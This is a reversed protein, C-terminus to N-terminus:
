LSLRRGRIIGVRGDSADGADSLLQLQTVTTEHTGDGTAGNAGMGDCWESEAIDSTDATVTSDPIAMLGILRGRKGSRPPRSVEVGSTALTEALRFLEKSLRAADHPWGSQRNTPDIGLTSNAIPDLQTKLESATGEWENRGAMFELIAQSLLSASVAEEHQRNINREYAALFRAGGWGAAEAIAYGWRAFDAMRFQRPVPVSPLIGIAKSLVAFAGGLIGPLDAQFETWFTAEDLPEKIRVLTVLLGRDLLDPREATHSIGNLCLVRRYAFLQADENTYLKRRFTADGTVAAALTDSTEPGIGSLNDVFLAWTQALQQQLDKLDTLRRITPVRSPDLILKSARATTTKGSGQPGALDLVPRPGDPSMCVLVWTKLLLAEESEPEVPLYRDISDFNGAPVPTAQHFQHPFRKFLIPPAEVVSWGDSNIRVASGGLDYWLLGDQWAVRVALSVTESDDVLAGLTFMAAKIAEPSVPKGKSGLWLRALWRAADQGELRFVKTGDGKPAVYYDGSEFDQFLYAGSAQALTLLRSAVGQNESGRPGAEGADTGDRQVASEEAMGLREAKEYLEQLYGM